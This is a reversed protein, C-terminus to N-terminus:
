LGKLCQVIYPLTAIMTDVGKDAIWKLAVSFKERVAKRKGKKDKLLEIIEILQGKIEEAEKENLSDCDVISKFCDEFSIPVNVNTEQNQNVSQNVNVVTQKANTQKKISKKEECIEHLYLKLKEIVGKHYAEEHLYMPVLSDQKIYDQVAKGFDVKGSYKVLMQEIFKRQEVPHNIKKGSQIDERMALVIPYSDLGDLIDQLASKMVILNSLINERVYRTEGTSFNYIACKDWDLTIYYGISCAALQEDIIKSKNYKEKDSINTHETLAYIEVLFKEVREIQRYTLNM